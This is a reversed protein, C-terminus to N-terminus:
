IDGALVDEIVDKAADATTGHTEGLVEALRNYARRIAREHGGQQVMEDIRDLMMAAALKARKVIQENTM